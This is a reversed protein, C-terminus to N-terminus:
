VLFSIFHNIEDQLKEFVKRTADVDLCQNEDPGFLKPFYRPNICNHLNTIYDSAILCCCCCAFLHLLNFCPLLRGVFLNIDTLTLPHGKRYYTPGPYACAYKPGVVFM